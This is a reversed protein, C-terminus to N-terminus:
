TIIIQVDTNLSDATLSNIIKDVCFGLKEIKEIQIDLPIYRSSSKELDLVLYYFYYLQKKSIMIIFTFSIFTNLM